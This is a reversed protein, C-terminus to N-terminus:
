FVRLITDVMEQVVSVLKAAAQYGQEYKTLNVLEEDLSVGSESDRHNQITQMIINQSDRLANSKNVGTGIDTVLGNYYESITSGKINQSYQIDSIKQAM